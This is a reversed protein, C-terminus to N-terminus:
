RRRGVSGWAPVERVTFPSPESRWRCARGVAAGVPDLGGFLRTFQEPSRARYPAAGTANYYGLAANLDPRAVLDGIALYGGSPLADTLQSTVLLGAQDDNQRPDGIHGLTSMLLIAVPQTFDLWEGVTALLAAPDNLDADIHTVTGSPGTLLARAFALVLPDNDAYAIRCDGAAGLAIEHVPDLFPLGTGIDLFQRVGAEAALFRVARATFHRLQRVTDTIGEFRALVEDGAEQDVPYSDKGGLWYDWLRASHPVTTDIEGAMDKEVQRWDFLQDDRM